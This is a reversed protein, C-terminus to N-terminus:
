QVTGPDLPSLLPLLRPVYPGAQQTERRARDAQERVLGATQDDRANESRGLQDAWDALVNARVLLLTGRVLDPSIGDGHPVGQDALQSTPTATPQTQASVVQLNESLLAVAAAHNGAAALMRAQLVIAALRARRDQEQRLLPLLRLLAEPRRDAKDLSAAILLNWAPAMEEPLGGALDAGQRAAELAAEPRTPELVASLMAALVGLRRAEDVFAQDQNAQLVLTRRLRDARAIADRATALVREVARRDVPLGLWARSM